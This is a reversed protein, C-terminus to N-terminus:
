KVAVKKLEINSYEDTEENYDWDVYVDIQKGDKLEQRYSYLERLVVTLVDHIGEIDPRLNRFEMERFGLNFEGEYATYVVTGGVLKNGYFGGRKEIM